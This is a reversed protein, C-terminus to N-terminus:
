FVKVQFRSTDQNFSFFIIRIVVNGLLRLRCVAPPGVSFIKEDFIVKKDMFLELEDLIFIEIFLKPNETCSILVKM